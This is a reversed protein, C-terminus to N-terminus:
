IEAMYSVMEVLGPCAKQEDFICHFKSSFTMKKANLVYNYSFQLKSVEFGLEKFKWLCGYLGMEECVNNTHNDDNIDSVVYSICIVPRFFPLSM